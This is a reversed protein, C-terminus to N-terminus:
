QVKTPPVDEKGFEESIEDRRKKSLQENDLEDWRVFVLRLQKLIIWISMIHHANVIEQPDRFQRVIIYMTDTADLLQTVDIIEDRTLYRILIEEDLWLVMMYKLSKFLIFPKGELKFRDFFKYTTYPKIVDVEKQIAAIINGLQEPSLKSHKLNYCQFWVSCEFGQRFHSRLLYRGNLIKKLEEHAPM